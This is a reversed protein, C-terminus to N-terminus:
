TADMAAAVPPYEWERVAARTEIMGNIRRAVQHHFVELFKLM